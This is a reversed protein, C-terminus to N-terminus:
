CVWGNENEKHLLTVAIQKLLTNVQSLECEFYARRWEKNWEWIENNWIGMEVIAAQKNISNNYLSPSREKL